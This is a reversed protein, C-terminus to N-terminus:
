ERDIDTNCKKQFPGYWLRFRRATEDYYATGYVQCGREWRTDPSLLPNDAHREPSHSTTLVTCAFLLLFLDAPKMEIVRWRMSRPTPHRELRSPMGRDSELTSDDIANPSASFSYDPKLDLALSRFRKVRHLTIMNSDHNNHLMTAKGEVYRTRWTYDEYVCTPREGIV